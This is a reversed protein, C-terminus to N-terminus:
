QEGEPETVSGLDPRLGLLDGVAFGVIEAIEEKSVRDGFKEVARDTIGPQHEDRFNEKIWDASMRIYHGYLTIQPREGEKFSVDGATGFAHYVDPERQSGFDEADELPTESWPTDHSDNLFGEGKAM